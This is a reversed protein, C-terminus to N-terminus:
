LPALQVLAKVATEGNDKRIEVAHTSGPQAESYLTLQDGCRSEASYAMEVRRVAHTDLLSTPFLDLVMEIYRISNVHGNIDLDSYRATRTFAPAADRLRIRGPGKIPVAKDPLLARSFGGDPLSELDAPQRSDVDILAWVSSGYGYVTDGVGLIAYQRDTFQRYLRNVWTCIRYREGTRPMRELEIVLRSLVWAHHIQQMQEYGFGHSGAHLSSCRLLLNGLTGWSLHGTYDESFPEVCFEYQGISSHTTDM